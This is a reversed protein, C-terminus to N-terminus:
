AKKAKLKGGENLNMKRHCKRVILKVPKCL